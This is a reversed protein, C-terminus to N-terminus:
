EQQMGAVHRQAHIRGVVALHFREELEERRWWDIPQDPELCV